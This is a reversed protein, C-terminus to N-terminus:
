SDKNSYKKNLRHFGAICRAVINIYLLLLVIQPILIGYENLRLTHLCGPLLCLLFIALVPLMRKNFIRHLMELKSANDSFIESESDSDMEAAPKRFYSYENIEQLYEWGYDEYLKHYNEKEDSPKPSFDLRYVVDEPQCKEFHYFGPLDAHTFKWGNKHMKRLYAEEEEYETLVFYHFECRTNDKM